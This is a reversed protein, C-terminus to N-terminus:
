GRRLVKLPIPHSGPHWSGWLQARPQSGSPRPLRPAPAPRPRAPPQAPTGPAPAPGPQRQAAAPRGGRMRPEGPQLRRRQWERSCSPGFGPAGCPSDLGQAAGSAAPAWPGTRKGVSEPPGQPPRGQTGPWPPLSRHRAPSGVASQTRGESGSPDRARTLEAAIARPSAAPVQPGLYVKRGGGKNESPYQPIDTAPGFSPSGTARRLLDRGKDGRRAEESVRRFERQNLGVAPGTPLSPALPPGRDLARSRPASCFGAARTPGPEEPPRQRTPRGGGGDGETM